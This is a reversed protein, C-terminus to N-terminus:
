GVFPPRGSSKPTWFARATSMQPVAILGAAFEAFFIAGDGAGDFGRTRGLGDSEQMVLGVVFNRHADARDGNVVLM